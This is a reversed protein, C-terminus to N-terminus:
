GDHLKGDDHPHDGHGVTAHVPGADLTVSASGDGPTPPSPPGESPAPAVSSAADSPPARDTLAYAVLGIAALVIALAISREFM